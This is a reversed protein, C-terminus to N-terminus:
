NSFHDGCGCSPRYTSRARLDGKINHRTRHDYGRRRWPRALRWFLRGVPGPGIMAIHM